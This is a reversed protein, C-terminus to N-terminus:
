RGKNAAAELLARDGESPDIDKYLWDKLVSFDVGSKDSVQRLCGQLDYFGVILKLGDKIPRGHAIGCFWNRKKTKAHRVHCLGTSSEYRDVIYIRGDMAEFHQGKKFLKIQVLGSELWKKKEVPDNCRKSYMDM